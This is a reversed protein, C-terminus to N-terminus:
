PDEHKKFPTKKKGNYHKKVELGWRLIVNISARHTWCGQVIITWHVKGCDRSILPKLLQSFYLGAKAWNQTLDSLELGSQHFVTCLNSSFYEWWMNTLFFTANIPSFSTSPTLPAEFKHVGVFYRTRFFCGLIVEEMMAGMMIFISNLIYLCKYNIKWQWCKQPQHEVRGWLKIWM